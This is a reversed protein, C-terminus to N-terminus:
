SAPRDLQDLWHWIGGVNAAAGSIQEFKETVLPDADAAFAAYRSLTKVRVAEVAHDLDM